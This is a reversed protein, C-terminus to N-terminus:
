PKGKQDAFIQLIRAFLRVHKAPRRHATPLNPTDAEPGHAVNQGGITSKGEVISHRCEAPRQPGHASGAVIMSCMPVPRSAAM